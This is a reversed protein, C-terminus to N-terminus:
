AKHRFGSSDVFQRDGSGGGNRVRKGDPRPRRAFAAGEQFELDIEVVARAFDRIFRKASAGSRRVLTLKGLPALVAKGSDLYEVVARFTFKGIVKALTGDVRPVIDNVALQFAQLANCPQVEINALAGDVAARFISRAAPKTIEVRAHLALLELNVGTTIGNDGAWQFWIKGRAVGKVDGNGFDPHRVSEGLHFGFPAIDTGGRMRHKAGSRSPPAAPSRATVFQQVSLTTPVDVSTLLLVRTTTVCGVFRLLHKEVM